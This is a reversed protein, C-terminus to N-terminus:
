AAAAACRRTLQALESNFAAMYRREAAIRAQEADFSAAEV